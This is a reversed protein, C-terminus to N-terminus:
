SFRTITVANGATGAGLRVEVGFLNEGVALPVNEFRFEGSSDATVFNLDGLHAQAGPQTHGVLTVVAASAHNDGPSGIEFEPALGFDAPFLELRDLRFLLSGSVHSQEGFRDIACTTFIRVGDGLAGPFLNQLLAEDFSYTGDPQVYSTLDVFENPDNRDFAGKFIVKSGFDPIRGTLSPDATIGDDPTGTDNVLSAVLYPIDAPAQTEIQKLKPSVPSQDWLQFRDAGAGGNLSMSNQAFMRRHPDGDIGARLEDNGDGLSVAVKQFWLSEWLDADREWLVGDDGDGAAISVKKAFRVDDIRLVDDGAGLDISAGGSLQMSYMRISDNGAGADITLNRPHPFQWLDHVVLQDDGGLLNIRLDRVAGPLEIVPEGNVTGGEVSIRVSTFPFTMEISVRDADDSGTVALTGKELSAAINSAPLVRSELFEVLAARPSRRLGALGSSRRSFWRRWGCWLDLYTMM